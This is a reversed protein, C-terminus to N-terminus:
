QPRGLVSSTIFLASELGCAEPKLRMGNIAVYKNTQLLKAKQFFVIIQSVALNIREHKL